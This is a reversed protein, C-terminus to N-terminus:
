ITRGNDKSYMEAVPFYCMLAVNSRWSFMPMRNSQEDSM